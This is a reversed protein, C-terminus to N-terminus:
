LIAGLGNGSADTQVTFRKAGESFDPFGLVPANGLCKKLTCFADICDRDCKFIDGKKTLKHLPAVINAFNQIYRRYYSALGVFQRTSHFDHSTPWDQIAQIKRPDPSM